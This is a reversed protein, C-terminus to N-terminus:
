TCEKDWNSNLCGKKKTPPASKKFSINTAYCQKEKTTVFHKWMLFVYLPFLKMTYYQFTEYDVFLAYNWM